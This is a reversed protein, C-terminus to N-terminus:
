GGCVDECPIGDGDRDLQNNGAALCAYAQECTLGSCTFDFGPCTGGSQAPPESVLPQTPAPQVAPANTPEIEPAAVVALQSTNGSEVRVLSEDASIWGDADWYRFFYWAGDPSIGSVVVKNGRPLRGIAAYETGPGSRVNLSNAVIEVRFEDMTSAMAGSPTYLNLVTEVWENDWGQWVYDTAGDGDALIATFQNLNPVAALAVDRMKEATARVRFGERVVVETSVLDNTAMTLDVSVVGDITMWQAALEDGTQNQTGANTPASTASRPAPTRTITPTPTITPTISARATATENAVAVSTTAEATRTQRGREMWQQGEPTNMWAFFVLVLLGLATCGIRNIHVNEQKEEPPPTNKAKGAV